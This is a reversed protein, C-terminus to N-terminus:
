SAGENKNFSHLAPRYVTFARKERDALDAGAHSYFNCAQRLRCAPQAYRCGPIGTAAATPYHNQM